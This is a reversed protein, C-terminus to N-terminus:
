KVSNLDQVTQITSSIGSIFLKDLLLECKYFVQLLNKIEQLPRETDGHPFDGCSAHRRVGSDLVVLNIVVKNFTM